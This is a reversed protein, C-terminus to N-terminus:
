IPTRQQPSASPVGARLGASGESDAVGAGFAGGDSGAVGTMGLRASDVDVSPGAASGAADAVPSGCGAGAVDEEEAVASSPGFSVNIFSGTAGGTVLLATSGSGVPVGQAYDQAMLRGSLPGNAMLKTLM